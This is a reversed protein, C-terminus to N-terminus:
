DMKTTKFADEEYKGILQPDTNNTLAGSAERSGAAKQQEVIM